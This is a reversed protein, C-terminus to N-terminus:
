QCGGTLWQQRQQGVSAKMAEVSAAQDEAPPLSSGDLHKSRREISRKNIGKMNGRHEQEQEQQQPETSASPIADRGIVDLLHHPLRLHPWGAPQPETAPRKIEQHWSESDALLTQRAAIQLQLAALM